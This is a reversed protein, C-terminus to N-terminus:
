DEVGLLATRESEHASRANYMSFDLHAERKGFMAMTEAARRWAMPATPKVVYVVGLTRGFPIVGKGGSPVPAGQQWQDHRKRHRREETNAYTYGCEACHRVENLTESGRRGARTWPTPSAVGLTPLGGLVNAPTGRSWAPSTGTSAVSRLRTCCLHRGM